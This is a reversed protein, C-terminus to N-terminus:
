MLGCKKIIYHLMNRVDRNRVCTVIPLTTRVESRQLSDPYVRAGITVINNNYAVNDWRELNVTILTSRPYNGAPTDSLAFGKTLKNDVVVSIPTARASSALAIISTGFSDNNDYFFKTARNPTNVQRNKHDAMFTGNNIVAYRLDVDRRAKKDM